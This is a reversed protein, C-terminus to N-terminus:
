DNSKFAAYLKSVSSVFDNIDQWTTTDADLTKLLQDQAAVLKKTAALGTEQISLFAASQHVLTHEASVVHRRYEVEPLGCSADAKLRAPVMAHEAESPESKMRDGYIKIEQGYAFFLTGPVKGEFEAELLAAAARIGPDAARVISRLEGKKVADSVQSVAFGLTKGAGTAITKAVPDGFISDLSGAVDSFKQMRADSDGYNALDTLAQGYQNLADALAVVLDVHKHEEPNRIYSQLNGLEHEFAVKSVNTPYTIMDERLRDVSDAARPAVSEVTTGLASTGKGFATVARKQNSSLGCATSSGALVFGLALRAFATWQGM